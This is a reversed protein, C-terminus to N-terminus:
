KENLNITIHRIVNDDLNLIRKIESVADVSSQFNYVTYVGERYRVGDRQKDNITYALRRKGMDKSDTLTGAQDKILNQFKERTKQLGDEDLEPRTIFMLEYQNM